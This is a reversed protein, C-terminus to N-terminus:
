SSQDAKDAPSGLPKIHPKLNPERMGSMKLIGDFVCGHHAELEKTEVEGEIRGTSHVILEDRAIIKGKFYGGVELKGVQITAEVKAGDGIILHDQSFIEGQFSGDIRVVGEFSLKGQFECGKDLLTITEAQVIKRNFTAM